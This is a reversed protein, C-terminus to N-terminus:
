NNEVYREKLRQIKCLKYKLGRCEMQSMTPSLIVGWLLKYVDAGVMPHNIPTNDQYPSQLRSKPISGWSYKRLFSEPAKFKTPLSFVRLCIYNLLTINFLEILMYFLM